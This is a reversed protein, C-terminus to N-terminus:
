SINCLVVCRKSLLRGAKMICRKQARAKKLGKIFITSYQIANAFM